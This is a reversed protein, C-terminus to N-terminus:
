QKQARCRIPERMGTLGWTCGCKRRKEARVALVTAVDLARRTSGLGESLRRGVVAAVAQGSWTWHTDDKRPWDADAEATAKARVNPLRFSMKRGLPGHIFLWSAASAALASRVARQRRPTAGSKMHLVTSARLPWLDYRGARLTVSHSSRRAHLLLRLALVNM